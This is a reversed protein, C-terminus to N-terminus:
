GAAELARAAMVAPAEQAADPVQRFDGRIAKLANREREIERATRVGLRRFLPVPPCWGRVAHQVLFGTVALPLIAWGRRRFSLMVGTFALIGANVELTREIDWERDLEALRGEILDPRATMFAISAETQRHIRENVDPATAEAVRDVTAPLDMAM